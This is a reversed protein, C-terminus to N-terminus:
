DLGQTHVTNRFAKHTHTQTHPTLGYIKGNKALCVIEFIVSSQAATLSSFM